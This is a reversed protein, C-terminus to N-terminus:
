TFDVLRIHIVTHTEFDLFSYFKISLRVTLTTQPTANWSFSETALLYEDIPLHIFWIIPEHKMTPQWFLIGLWAEQKFPTPYTEQQKEIHKFRQNSLPYVKHGMDFIRYQYHSIKFFHSISNINIPAKM